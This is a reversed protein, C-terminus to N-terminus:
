LEKQLQQTCLEEWKNELIKIKRRLTKPDLTEIGWHYVTDRPYETVEILEMNAQGIPEGMRNGSKYKPIQWNLEALKRKKQKESIINYVFPGLFVKGIKTTTKLRLM